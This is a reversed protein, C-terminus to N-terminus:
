GGFGPLRLVSVGIFELLTVSFIIFLLGVIASTVMERAKNAQEPQGQSTSLMFGAGLLMLLAVGGSMALGIRLVSSVIGQSTTPICGVATWIATGDEACTRCAEQKTPDPIQVCLKFESNGGNDEAPNERDEQTCSLKVPLRQSECIKINETSGFAGRIPVEINVQVGSLDIGLDNGSTNLSGSAIPGTGTIVGEPSTQYQVAGGNSGINFTIARVEKTYRAGNSYKVTAKWEVTDGVQFCGNTQSSQVRIYDFSCNLGKTENEVRYPLATCGNSNGQPYLEVEADVDTNAFTGADGVKSFCNNDTINWLARGQSDTQITAEGRNVGNVVCRATYSQNSQLGEFGLTIPANANAYPTNDQAISPFTGSTRFSANLIQTCFGLRAEVRSPFILFFLGVFVGVALLKGGFQSLKSSFM